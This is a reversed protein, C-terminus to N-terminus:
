RDRAAAAARREALRQFARVVRAPTDDALSDRAWYPLSGSASSTMAYHLQCRGPGLEEIWAEGELRRDAEGATVWEMRRGGPDYQYAMEYVMSAASPMGVFRVRTARGEADRELVEAEAVGAIWEPALLPDALLAWCFAADCPIEISALASM